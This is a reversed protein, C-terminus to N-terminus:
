VSGDPRTTAARAPTRHDAAGDNSPVVLANSCPRADVSHSRSRGPASATCWAPAAASSSAAPVSAPHEGGPLGPVNRACCAASM